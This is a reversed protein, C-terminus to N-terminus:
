LYNKQLYQVVLLYSDGMSQQGVNKKRESFFQLYTDAEKGFDVKYLLLQNEKNALDVKLLDNTSKGDVVSSQLFCKMVVILLYRVETCLCHVILYEVRFMILYREIPSNLGVLFQNCTDYGLIIKSLYILFM